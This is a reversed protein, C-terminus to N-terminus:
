FVFAPRKELGPLVPAAADFLTWRGLDGHSRTVITARSPRTMAFVGVLRGGEGLQGCLQEPEVETSGNLIIVDYPAGAPDGDAPAAVKLIVNTFGLRTLIERGRAVLAPDAETGTVKAAMMAAIAACYGTACGVILVNDGADINAAQLMKATVQPKILFRRAPNPEGVDLDLDLYALPRKQVPVFDERPLALMADLIRRDTVDVTRVQGDVMNQRAKSFGSM